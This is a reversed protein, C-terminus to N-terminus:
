FVKFLIGLLGDMVANYRRRRTGEVRLLYLNKVAIVLHYSRTSWCTLDEVFQQMLHRLLKVYSSTRLFPYSIRRILQIVECLTNDSLFGSSQM